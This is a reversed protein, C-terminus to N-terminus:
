RWKQRGVKELILNLIYQIFNSCPDLVNMCITFFGVLFIRSLWCELVWGNQNYYDESSSYQSIDNKRRRFSFQSESVAKKLDNFPEMSNKLSPHSKLYFLLITQISEFHKRVDFNFLLAWFEELFELALNKYLPSFNSFRVLLVKNCNKWSHIRKSLQTFFQFERSSFGLAKTVFEFFSLPISFTYVWSFDALDEANWFRSEWTELQKSIKKKTTM